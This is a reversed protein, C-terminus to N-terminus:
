GRAGGGRRLGCVAAALVRVRVQVRARVSGAAGGTKRRGKRAREGGGMAATVDGGGEREFM